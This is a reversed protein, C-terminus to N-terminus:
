RDGYNTATMTWLPALVSNGAAAVNYPLNFRSNQLSTLMRMDCIVGNTATCTNNLDYFFSGEVFRSTTAYFDGSSLCVIITTNAPITINQVTNINTNITNYQYLLSSNVITTTSYKSSNPTLTFLCVTNYSAIGGTTALMSVPVTVSSSTTNRLPMMRFGYGSYQSANSGQWGSDRYHGVRNGNAWEVTRSYDRQSDGIFGQQSTGFNGYADGLAMNIWQILSNDTYAAYGQLTTWPGNSTWANFYQNSQDSHTFLSGINNIGEPALLSAVSTPIINQDVLSLSNFKM